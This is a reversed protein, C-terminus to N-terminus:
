GVERVGKESVGGEEGEGGGVEYRFKGGEYRLVAGEDRVRM